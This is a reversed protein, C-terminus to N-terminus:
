KSGIQKDSEHFAVSYFAIRAIQDAPLQIFTGATGSKGPDLFLNFHHCGILNKDKDLFAVNYSYYMKVPATNNVKAGVSVPTGGALKILNFTANIKVKDGMAVNITDNGGPTFKAPGTKSEARIEAAKLGLIAGIVAMSLFM